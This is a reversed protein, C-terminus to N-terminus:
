RSGGLAEYYRRVSEEFKRPVPDRDVPGESERGAKRALESSIADRLQALPVLLGDEIAKPSPKTANRKMDARLQEASQQVRAVAARLHPRELLAEVRDLQGLWEGLKQAPTGDGGGQYSGNQAAAVAEAGAGPKVPRAAPSRIEM